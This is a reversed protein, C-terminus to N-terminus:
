VSNAVQERKFKNQPKKRELTRKLNLLRLNRQSRRDRRGARSIKRRPVNARECGVAVFVEAQTQSQVSIQETHRMMGDNRQVEQYGVREM